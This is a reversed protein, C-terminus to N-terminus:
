YIVVAAGAQALSFSVWKKRKCALKDEPRATQAERREQEQLM